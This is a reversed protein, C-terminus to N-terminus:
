FTVLPDFSAETFNLVAQEVSDRIITLTTDHKTEAPDIGLWPKVDDDIDCFPTPM